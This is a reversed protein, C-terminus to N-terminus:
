RGCGADRAAGDIPVEAVLRMEEIRQALALLQRHFRHKGARALDPLLIGQAGQARERDVTQYAESGVGARLRHEIHDEVLALESGLERRDGAAAVGGVCAAERVDLTKQLLSAI